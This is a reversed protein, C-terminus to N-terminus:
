RAYMPRLASPWCPAASAKTRGTPALYISKEVTHRYAPKARWPVAYAYGVIESSPEAVLFPLGQATLDDLWQPWVVTPPPTEEFPIVTPRVYHTFIEAM